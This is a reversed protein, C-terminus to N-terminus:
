RGGAGEDAERAGPAPIEAGRARADAVAGSDRRLFDLVRTASAAGELRSVEVLRGQDVRMLLLTPLSEVQPGAFDAALGRTVDVLVAHTNERIWRQVGEDALGGRKFAQCPGCWDATYFFLVPKGDSMARGAAVEVTAGQVFAEPTPAQRRSVMVAGVYIMVLVIVVIPGTSRSRPRKDFAFVDSGEEEDRGRRGAGMWGGGSAGEEPDGGWVVRGEAM